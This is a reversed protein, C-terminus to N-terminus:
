VLRLRMGCVRVLDDSERFGREEAAKLVNAKDAVAIDLGGLGIGRGVAAAIDELGTRPLRASALFGAGM